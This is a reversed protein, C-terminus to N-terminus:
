TLAMIRVRPPKWGVLEEKQREFADEVGMIVYVSERRIMMDPDTDNNFSVLTKQTFDSSSEPSIVLTLVKLASFGALMALNRSWVRAWLGYEIALYQVRQMDERSVIKLMKSIQSTLDEEESSIETRRLSTQRPVQNMEHNSVAPHWGRSKFTEESLYLTDIDFNFYTGSRIGATFLLNYSKLTENRSERCVHFIAPLPAKSACKHYHRDHQLSIVRPQPQALSWIKSRIEFPLHPFPSFNSIIQSMRSSTASLM